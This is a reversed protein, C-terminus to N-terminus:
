SSCKTYFCGVTEKTTSSYLTFNFTSSSSQWHIPLMFPIILWMWEEIGTWSSRVGERRIEQSLFGWYVKQESSLYKFLSNVYMLCPIIRELFLLELTEVVYVIEFKYRFFNHAMSVKILSTNLSSINLM